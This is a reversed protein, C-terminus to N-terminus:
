AELIDGVKVDKFNSHGLASEFGTPLGERPTTGGQLAEFLSNELTNIVVGDRVVRVKADRQPDMSLM